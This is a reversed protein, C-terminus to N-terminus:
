LKNIEFLNGKSIKNKLFTPLKVFFLRQHKKILKLIWNYIPIWSAMDDKAYINCQHGYIVSTDM